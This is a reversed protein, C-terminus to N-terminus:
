IEIDFMKGKSKEQLKQQGPNPNQRDNLSKSPEIKEVPKIFKPLEGPGIKIGEM